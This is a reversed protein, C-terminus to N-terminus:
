ATSQIPPGQLIRVKSWRILLPFFRKNILSKPEGESTVNRWFADSTDRKTWTKLELPASRSRRDNGAAHRAMSTRPGRADAASRRQVSETAECRAPEARLSPRLVRRWLHVDLRVAAPSGGTARFPPGEGFETAAGLRRETRADREASSAYRQRRM